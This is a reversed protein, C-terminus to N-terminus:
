SPYFVPPEGCPKPRLVRLLSSAPPPSALPPNELSMGTHSSKRSSSWHHRFAPPPGPSPRFASPPGPSPRVSASPRPVPPISASPRPVPPISVSPKPAPPFSPPPRFAPPPNVTPHFALPTSASPCFALPHLRPISPGTLRSPKCLTERVFTGAGFFRFVAVQAPRPKEFALFCPSLTIKAQMPRSTHGRGTGLWLAIGPGVAM